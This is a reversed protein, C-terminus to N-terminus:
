IKTRLKSAREQKLFKESESSWKKFKDFEKLAKQGENFEKNEKANIGLEKAMKEFKKLNSELKLVSDEVSSKLKGLEFEMTLLKKDGMIIKDSLDMLEIQMDEYDGINKRFDSLVKEDLIKSKNKILKNFKDISENMESLISLEIKQSELKTKKSFLKNYVAKKTNM